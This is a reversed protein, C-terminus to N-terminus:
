ENSLHTNPIMPPKLVDSTLQPNSKIEEPINADDEIIIVDDDEEDNKEVKIKKDALIKILLFDILWFLLLM